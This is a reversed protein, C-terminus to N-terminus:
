GRLRARARGARRGERPRAADGSDRGPAEPVHDSGYWWRGRPRATGDAADTGTCDEDIQVSGEYRIGPAFFTEQVTFGFVGTVVGDPDITMTGLATIDKDPPLNPLMQQGIGTAFVWKGVVDRLSCGDVSYGAPQRDRGDAGHAAACLGAGIGVILLKQLTKM